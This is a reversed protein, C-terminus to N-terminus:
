QPTTQNGPASAEFAILNENFFQQVETQLQEVRELLHVVDEMNIEYGSKYRSDSYANNLQNFLQKEKESDRPFVMKLDPACFSCRYLLRSLDHEYNVHAILSYLLARCSHEAAQHLMFASTSLQDISIYYRAGNLFNQATTFIKDFKYTCRKIIDNIDAQPFNPLADDIRSYVVKDPKYIVSYFIYGHQLFKYTEDTKNFILSIRIAPYKLQIAKEHEKFSYRHIEPLLILFQCSIVKQENSLEADLQFVKDPVCTEIICDIIDKLTSIQNEVPSETELEKLHLAYGAEILCEVEEYTILVQVENM